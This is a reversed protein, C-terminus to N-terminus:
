DPPTLMTEWKADADVSVHAVTSGYESVMIDHFSTQTHSHELSSAVLDWYGLSSRWWFQLLMCLAQPFRASRTKSISITCCSAPLWAKASASKCFGDTFVGLSAVLRVRHPLLSIPNTM